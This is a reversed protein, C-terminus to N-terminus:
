LTFISCFFITAILFVFFLFVFFYFYFYLFYFYLFKKENPEPPPTNWRGSKPGMWDGKETKRGWGRIRIAPVGIWM